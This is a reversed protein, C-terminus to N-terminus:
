KTLVLKDECKSIIIQFLYLKKLELKEINLLM